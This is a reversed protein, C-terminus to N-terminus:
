EVKQTLQSIFWGWSNQRTQMAHATSSLILQIGLSQTLLGLKVLDIGHHIQLKGTMITVGKILLSNLLWSCKDKLWNRLLTLTIRNSRKDDNDSGSSQFSMLSNVLCRRYSLWIFPFFPLPRLYMGSLNGVWGGM